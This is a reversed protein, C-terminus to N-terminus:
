YDISMCVLLSLSCSSLKVLFGFPKTIGQRSFFSYHLRHFSGVNYVLNDTETETKLKKGWTVGSSRKVEVVFLLNRKRVM